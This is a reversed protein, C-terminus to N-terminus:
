LRKVWIKVQSLRCVLRYWRGCPLELNVECKLTGVLFIDPTIKGKTLWCLAARVFDFDRHAQADTLVLWVDGM